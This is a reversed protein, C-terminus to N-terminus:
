DILYGVVHWDQGQRQLTVTEVAQAKEAFKTRFRVVDYGYPPAPLTDHTLLVRSRVAGLPQRAQESAKAWAEVTNLKRFAAGTKLWSGQWDGTDVVALWQRAAEEVATRNAAAAAPVSGPIPPSGLTQEYQPQAVLALIAVFASMVIVGALAWLSRNAARAGAPKGAVAIPGAADGITDDALIEPTRSEEQLVLRAAERSSSVELKRRADRLRENVTHVSLGLHRALSKADHGRLMLRLTQKEKETLAQYGHAM